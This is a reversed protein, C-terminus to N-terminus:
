LPPGRSNCFFPETRSVIPWAPLIHCTTPRSMFQRVECGSGALYLALGSVPVVANRPCRTFIKTVPPGVRVPDSVPWRIHWALHGDLRENESISRKPELLTTVTPQFRANLFKGQVHFALWLNGGVRSKLEFRALPGAFKTWEFVYIM